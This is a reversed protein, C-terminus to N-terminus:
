RRVIKRIKLQAVVLLICKQVYKIENSLKEAAFTSM